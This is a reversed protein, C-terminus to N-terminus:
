GHRHLRAPVGGALDGARDVAPARLREVVDVLPRHGGDAAASRHRLEREPDLQAAEGCPERPEPDGEQLERAHAIADRDEDIPGPVPERVVPARADDEGGGLVRRRGRAVSAATPDPAASSGTWRSRSPWATTASARSATARRTPM